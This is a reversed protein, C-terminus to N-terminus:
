KEGSVIWNVCHSSMNVLQGQCTGNPCWEGRSTCIEREREREEKENTPPTVNKNCVDVFPFPSM